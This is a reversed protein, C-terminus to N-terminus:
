QGIGYRKAEELELLKIIRNRIDNYMKIDRENLESFLLIDVDQGELLFELNALMGRLTDIQAQMDAITKVDNM